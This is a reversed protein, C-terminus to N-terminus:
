AQNSCILDCGLVISLSTAHILRNILADPLVPLSWLWSVGKGQQLMNAALRESSCILGFLRGQMQIQFKKLGHLM